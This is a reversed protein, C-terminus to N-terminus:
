MNPELKTEGVVERIRNVADGISNDLEWKLAENFIIYQREGNLKIRDVWVHIGNIKKMVKRLSDDSDFVKGQVADRVNRSITKMGLASPKELDALKEAIVQAEKQADSLSDEVLKKKKETMPARDGRKLYHESPFDDAWKKIIGLGGSELWNHFEIFREKPWREETVEPYFWRRDDEEMKLPTKSNSCAVIHVWNQVTYEKEYKINITVEKDTIFEKLKNYTKWSHGQYIESVVALRKEGAWSNFDGSIQSENPFSANHKGVLPALINQGLTTKGIGTAESVLLLGYEIRRDPRAILTACWREVEKREGENPFMYTLFDLFPKPNGESPKISSPIHRNISPKGDDMVITEKLDPRYCIGYTKGKTYENDFLRATNDANSFAAVEKNFRRSDFKLKPYEICVYADADGVYAWLGKAHQRLTIEPRGKKDAHKLDTLWTAPHVCDSFTPGIYYDQDNIQKFMKKPFEDGLDFSAPWDQTFLINFTPVNLHKAIKPVASRGEDDNDSVIYIRTIGLGKLVSWDTRHPNPAGGVWSLHTAGSLERGWPHKSLKDKQDTTQAEIMRQITRASKVGEHLFITTNDKIKELGWLPLKEPEVDKRWQDDSWYTWTSFGKHGDKGVWRVQLMVIQNEIDRFQYLNEPDITKLEEPLNSLNPLKKLTPFKANKIEIKIEVLEEPTPELDKNSPTVSVGEDTFKITYKDKWYSGTKEKQVAKRMSRFEAGGIREFYKKIIPSNALPFDPITM